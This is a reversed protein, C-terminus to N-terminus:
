LDIEEGGALRILALWDDFPKPVPPPSGNSWELLSEYSPADGAYRELIFHVMELRINLRDCELFFKRCDPPLEKM